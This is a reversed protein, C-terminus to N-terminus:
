WLPFFVLFVDHEIIGFRGFGFACEAVDRHSERRGHTIEGPLSQTSELYTASDHVVISLRHFLSGDDHNRTSLGFECGVFSKRYVDGEVAHAVGVGARVDLHFDSTELEFFLKATRPDSRPNLSGLYTRKSEM